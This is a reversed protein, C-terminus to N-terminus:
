HEAANWGCFDCDDSHDPIDNELTNVADKVMERAKRMDVETRRIETNFVFEGCETFKEPYFYLILGYEATQHGNERLILNYLNVQRGYYDPVGKKEKPPFGRTKYDMVVIKDGDKLLDDVGGRLIANYEGSRWKPETRWDRAKELFEKDELLQLDLDELEPPKEDKERFHDFHNKVQKDVGSPLSPFPRSPRKIGKKVRLWFCRKCEFFLNM